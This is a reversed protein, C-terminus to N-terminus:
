FSQIIRRKLGKDREVMNEENCWEMDISVVECFCQLMWISFLGLYKLSDGGCAAHVDYVSFEISTCLRQQQQQQQRRLAGGIFVCM